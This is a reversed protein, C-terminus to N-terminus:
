AAWPLVDAKRLAGLRRLLEEYPMDALESLRIHNNYGGRHDKLNRITRYPSVHLCDRANGASKCIM